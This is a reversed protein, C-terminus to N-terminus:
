RCRMEKEMRDLLKRERRADVKGFRGVGESERSIDHSRDTDHSTM